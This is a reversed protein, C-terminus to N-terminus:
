KQGLGTLATALDGCRMRVGGFTLGSAFKHATDEVRSFGFAVYFSVAGFSSICEMQSIGQSAAELMCAIM